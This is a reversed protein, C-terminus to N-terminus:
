WRRWRGGGGNQRLRVDVQSHARHARGVAEHVCGALEQYSEGDHHLFPVGLLLRWCERAATWAAACAEQLDPDLGGGPADPIRRVMGDIVSKWEDAPPPNGAQAWM